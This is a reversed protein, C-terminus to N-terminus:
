LLVLRMLLRRLAEKGRLINTKVTGVPCGLVAAAEEHSLGNQYCLTLAARQELSVRRLASELDMAWRDPPPVAETEWEAVDGELGVPDRRRRAENLYQRYAIRFLWGQFSGSARYSTLSRFARVFTEQALDDAEAADGQTLRRLWLRLPSQYRLVLQGFADHDQDLLVRAILEPDSPTVM